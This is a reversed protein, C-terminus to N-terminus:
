FFWPGWKQSWEGHNISTKEHGGWWCWSSLFSSHHRRVSSILLGVEKHWVQQQRLIMSDLEMAKNQRNNYWLSLILMLICLCYLLGVFIEGQNSRDVGCALFVYIFWYYIIILISILLDTSFRSVLHQECTLEHYNIVMGEMMENNWMYIGWTYHWQWTAKVSTSRSSKIMMGRVVMVRLKESCNYECWLIIFGKYQAKGKVKKNRWARRFKSRTGM